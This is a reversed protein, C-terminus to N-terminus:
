RVRWVLASVPYSRCVSKKKKKLPFVLLLQQFMVLRSGVLYVNYPIRIRPIPSTTGQNPRSEERQFTRIKGNERPEGSKRM